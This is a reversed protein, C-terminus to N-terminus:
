RHHLPAKKGIIQLRTNPIPPTTPIPHYNSLIDSTPIIFTISKNM